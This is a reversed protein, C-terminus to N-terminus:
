QGHDTPRGFQVCIVRSDSHATSGNSTGPGAIITATLSNVDIRYAPLVHPVTGEDGSVYV